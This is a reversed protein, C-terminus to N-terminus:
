FRLKNLENPDAFPLFIVNLSDFFLNVLDNVADIPYCAAFFMGYVYPERPRSLSPLNFRWRRGVRRQLAPDFGDGGGADGSLRDVGVHQVVDDVVEIVEGGGVDGNDVVPEM